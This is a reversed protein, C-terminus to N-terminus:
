RTAINFELSSKFKNNFTNFDEGAFGVGYAVESCADSFVIDEKLILAKVSKNSTGTFFERRKNTIVLTYDVSTKYTIYSNSYLGKEVQSGIRYANVDDYIVDGVEWYKGNSTNISSPVNTYIESDFKFQRAPADICYAYLGYVNNHPLYIVDGVDFAGSSLTIINNSVTASFSQNIAPGFLFKYDSM